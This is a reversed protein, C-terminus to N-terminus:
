KRSKRSDVKSAICQSLGDGLKKEVKKSEGSTRWSDEVLSVNGNPNTIEIYGTTANIKCKKLLHQNLQDRGEKSNIDGEFGSLEALCGRFDEPRSGRIGTVASLNKDFNEVMLDFHMSHMATAIYASTHPGNNGDKDPFGKERDAKSIENVMDRHVAGVLDKEDNKNKVALAISESNFDIDPYKQKTKTEQAFEGVKTLIKGFKKYSVKKGRAEESKMYQQAAQLLEMNNKPKVNNQQMWKNFEPQEKLADMYPQMEEIESIKVFNEDIKMSAFARNTAQKGDACKDIGDKAFTVVAESVEPGFQKIISALMYEPTTNAWMDKLDNQKKNTIHLITTRGNKDKGIAMTDHFGLKDFAVIEREYHEVDEANGSKKAEELKDQLHTRISADAGGEKPNSQIIHYPQSTDINSGNEIEYLTAHAGDFEADAWDRFAKEKKAEDPQNFGKTGKNYWLSNPNAKLRELELDGYVKREALYQVAEEASVGLQESIAKVKRANAKSNALINKKEVEIAEKNTEKFKSYGDGKLDNAARTLASEGYSAVSGGAGAIGKDRLANVEDSAKVLESFDGKNLSQTIEEQRPTLKGPESKPKSSKTPKKSKQQANKEASSVGIDAKPATQPTDAKPSPTSTDQTPLEGGNSAKAKEIEAPTPKVHKDPNFTKVTYVNGSDKGKVVEDEKIVRKSKSTYEKIYKFVVSARDVLQQASDINRERLLKVLIQKHSEKTLDVIGVKVSLDDLAEEFDPYM